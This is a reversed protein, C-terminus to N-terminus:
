SAGPWAGVVMIRADTAIVHVPVDGPTNPLEALLQFDYILAVRAARPLTPLLQDYFGKGYGLRHGRADAALAPVLVLDVDAEPVSPADAPPEPVGFGGPELTANPEWRHLRLQGAEFDVRPLAVTKGAARAAGVIPEPSLEARIPAYTLLTRAHVFPELGLVRTAAASARAARAEAPVASRLNKM